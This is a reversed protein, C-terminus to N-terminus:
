LPHLVTGKEDRLIALTARLQTDSMAGTEYAHQIEDRMPQAMNINNLQHVFSAHLDRIKGPVVSAMTPAITVAQQAPAATPANQNMLERHAIERAEPTYQGFTNIAAPNYGRSACAIMHQQVQNFVFDAYEVTNFLQEDEMRKKQDQESGSLTAPSNARLQSLWYPKYINRIEENMFVVSLDQKSLEMFYNVFKDIPMSQLATVLTQVQEPSLTLVPQYQPMAGAPMSPPTQPRASANMSAMQPIANSTQPTEGATMTPYAPRRAARHGRAMRRQFIPAQTPSVAQNNNKELPASQFTFPNDSISEGDATTDGDYEAASLLRSRTRAPTSSTALFNMSQLTSFISASRQEHSPRGSLSAPGATSSTRDNMLQQALLISAESQPYSSFDNTANSNSQAPMAAATAPRNDAAQTLLTM